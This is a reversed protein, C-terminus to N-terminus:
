GCLSQVRNPGSWSPKSQPRPQCGSAAPVRPSGAEIEWVHVLPASISPLTEAVAAVAKARRNSRSRAFRRAADAIGGPHNALAEPLKEPTVGREHFYKIAQSNRSADQIDKPRARLVFKTAILIPDRRSPPMSFFEDRAFRQWAVDDDRIVLGISLAAALRYYLFSHSRCENEREVGAAWAAYAILGDLDRGTFLADVDVKSLNKM